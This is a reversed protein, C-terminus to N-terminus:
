PLERKPEKEKPEAPSTPEAELDDFYDLEIVGTGKLKEVAEPCRSLALSLAELITQQDEDDYQSEDAIRNAIAEAWDANTPFHVSNRLRDIEAQIVHDKDMGSRIAIERAQRLVDDYLAPRWIPLKCWCNVARDDIFVTALPKGQGVWIDEFPIENKELYERVKNALLNPGLRNVEVSCRTTFVLIDFDKHLEDMFKKAGSYLPGFVDVGKWGDYNIITDDLDVAAIPRTM